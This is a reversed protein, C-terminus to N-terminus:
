ATTMPRLVQSAYLGEYVGNHPVTQYRMFLRWILQWQPSRPEVYRVPLGADQAADYGFVAAHSKPAEILPEHLARTLAEIKAPSRGTCSSLCEALLDDTRAIASRAEAAMLGTVDALLAAHLPYTAPEAAVAAEAREVAEIIDKAAVLDFRDGRPIRFQPDIPGLDSTPGMLIHHAGLALLTAASKAQDPIVVTLERCRAQMSRILRIATEGDGGPSDLLLHMDQAPDADYILDELFGVSDPFVQDIMVILRCGFTDQYTRIMQQRDYRAANQAHFLPSQSPFKLDSGPIVEPGQAGDAPGGAAGRGREEGGEGDRDESGLEHRRGEAAEGGPGPGPPREHEAGEEPM